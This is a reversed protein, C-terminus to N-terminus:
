LRTEDDIFDYRGTVYIEIQIEEERATMALIYVRKRKEDYRFIEISCFLNSLMQMIYFCAYQQELTPKM